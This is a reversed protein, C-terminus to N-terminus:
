STSPHTALAFTAPELGAAQELEEVVEPGDNLRSLALYSKFLKKRPTSPFSVSQLTMGINDRDSGWDSLRWACELLLDPKSEHKSLDCLIDWQQLKKTASVWRSEWLNYESESFPLVCSRAKTQALEYFKQADDWKGIQESALAANTELFLCRRRWLGAYYDDEDLEDYLDALADLFSDRVKEEEKTTSGLLSNQEFISNELLQMAIHWSNYTKGLYKVLHPPLQISPSCRSAGELLAQIVNPRLESQPSHYEKALLVIISKVLDHKEANKLTNWASSFITVWMEYSLLNDDQIIKKISSIMSSVPLEKISALFENHKAIFDDLVLNRKNGSRQISANQNLFEIRIGQNANYVTENQISGFLIEVAQTIWFDSAM